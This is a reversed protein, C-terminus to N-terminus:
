FVSVFGGKEVWPLPKAEDDDDGDDVNDDASFVVAVSSFLFLLPLARKMTAMPRGVGCLIPSRDQREGFTHKGLNDIRGIPM